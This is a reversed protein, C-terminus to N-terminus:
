PDEPVTGSDKPLLADIKSQIHTHESDCAKTICPATSPGHHTCAPAGSAGPGGKKSKM